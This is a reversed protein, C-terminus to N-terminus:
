KAQRGRLALGCLSACGALAAMALYATAGAEAYLLGSAPMILGFAVGVALASYASQASASLGTPVRLEIFRMTALHAAGFTFAHGLQAAILGALGPELSFTVWRLVGVAGALALIGGPSARRFVRAAMWFLVVEALVGEAWLGAIIPDALGAARWHVSAFAYYVAHSSQIAAAGLLFLLFGPVKLVARLRLGEEHEEGPTSSTGAHTDPLTLCSLTVLVLGAGILTLILAAEGRGASVAGLGAGTVNVAGIYALSGWLRM